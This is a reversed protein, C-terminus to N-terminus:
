VEEYVGLRAKLREQEALSENLKVSLKENESELWATRVMIQNMKIRQADRARKSRCQEQTTAGLIQRGETGRPRIAEQSQAHRTSPAVGRTRIPATKSQLSARRPCHGFSARPGVYQDRCRYRPTPSVRAGM